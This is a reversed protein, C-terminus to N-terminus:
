KNFSELGKKIGRLEKPENIYLIKIKNNDQITVRYKYDYQDSFGWTILLWKNNHCYHKIDRYIKSFAFFHEGVM